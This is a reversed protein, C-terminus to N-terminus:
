KVFKIERVKGALDEVNIKLVAIEGKEGKVKDTLVLRGKEDPLTYTYSMNGGEREKVIEKQPCIRLMYAQADAFDKVKVIRIEPTAGEKGIPQGDPYLVTELRKVIQKSDPQSQALCAFSAVALLAALLSKMFKAKM